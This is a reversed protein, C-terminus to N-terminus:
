ETRKIIHFGFPSEVIESVEGPALAFAAKEFAPDM